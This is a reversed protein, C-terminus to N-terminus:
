FLKFCFCSKPFWTYSIVEHNRFMNRKTGNVESSEHEPRVKMVVTNGHFLCNADVSSSRIAEHDNDNSCLCVDNKTLYHNFDYSM